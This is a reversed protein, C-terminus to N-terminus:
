ELVITRAAGAAVAQGSPVAPAVAYLDEATPSDELRWTIGGDLSQLIVGMEGVITWRTATATVARLTLTTPSDVEAWTAGANTSRIITGSNGAAVVISEWGRVGYLDDTISGGPSIDTFSAGNNTSRVITGAAGVAVVAGTCPAVAQLDESVPSALATWTQGADTSRYIGGGDGVAVLVDDAESGRSLGYVAGTINTGDGGGWSEGGDESRVVNGPMGLAVLINADGATVAYYDDVIPLLAPTWTTLDAGARMYLGGTGVVVSWGLATSAAGRLVETTPTIGLDTWLYHVLPLTEILANKDVVCELLADDIGEDVAIQWVFNWQEDTLEDTCLDECDFVGEGQEIWHLEYGLSALLDTWFDLSQDHGTQALMKALIAARRAALTEPVACDPLGYMTEWDELLEFTTAPNLERLLKEGRLAVRSLETAESAVLEQLVPDDRSWAAGNPLLDLIVQEYRRNTCDWEGAVKGAEVLGYLDVFAM